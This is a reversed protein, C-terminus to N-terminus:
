VGAAWVGILTEFAPLALDVDEPSTFTIIARNHAAWKLHGGLNDVEIAALEPKPKAGTHLIVQLVGPRRMSFTAFDDTVAFNPAQWKISQIAGPVARLIADRLSRAPETMSHTQQELWANVDEAGTM